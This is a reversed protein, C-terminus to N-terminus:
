TLLQRDGYYSSDAVFAAVHRERALPRQTSTPNTSTHWELTDLNLTSVDRIEYQINRFGGFVVMMNDVVAASHGSLTLPVAGTM